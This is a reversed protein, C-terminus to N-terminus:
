LRFKIEVCLLYVNVASREDRLHFTTLEFGPWELDLVKSYTTIKGKGLTRCEFTLPMPWESIVNCVSTWLSTLCALVYFFGWHQFGSTNPMPNFKCGKAQLLSTRTDTFFLIFVECQLCFIWFNFDSSTIQFFFRYYIKWTDHRELFEHYSFSSIM